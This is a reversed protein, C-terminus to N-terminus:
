RKTHGKNKRKDGPKHNRARGTQDFDYDAAEGDRAVQERHGTHTDVKFITTPSEKGCEGPWCVFEVLIKGPEHTLVGAFYAWGRDKRRGRRTGMDPEYAFLTEQDSGDLNTSMLEGYTVPAAQM